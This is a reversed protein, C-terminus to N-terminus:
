RGLFGFRKRSSDKSAGLASELRGLTDQLRELTPGLEAGPRDGNRGVKGEIRKLLDSIEVARSLLESTREDGSSRMAEVIKTLAAVTQQGSRDLQEGFAAVAHGTMDQQVAKVGGVIKTAFRDPLEEVSKQCEDVGQRVRVLDNRLPSLQESVSATLQGSLGKVAGSNESVAEQLRAVAGPLDAVLMAEIKESMRESSAELANAVPIGSEVAETLRSAAVDFRATLQEIAAQVARSVVVAAEEPSDDERQAIVEKFLDKISTALSRVENTLGQIKELNRQEQRESWKEMERAVHSLAAALNPDVNKAVPSKLSGLAAYAARLVESGEAKKQVCVFQLVLATLFAAGNALFIVGFHEIIEDERVVSEGSLFVLALTAATVVLTALVFNGAWEKYTRIHDDIAVELPQMAAAIRDVHGRGPHDTLVQRLVDKVSDHMSLEDVEASSISGIVAPVERWQRSNPMSRASRRITRVAQVLLIIYVGVFPILIASQTM